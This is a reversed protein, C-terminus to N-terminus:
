GELRVTTCFPCSPSHFWVICDHGHRCRAVAVQFNRDTLYSIMRFGDRECPVPTRYMRCTGECPLDLQIGNKVRAM